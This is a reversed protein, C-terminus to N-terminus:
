YNVKITFMLSKTAPNNFYDVGRANSPGSLNTEPDNGKFDTWLFLNRGSIGFEMSNLKTKQRFAVTNLSYSIALERLKTWEASEIFSEMQAGFGGGLTQWWTEDILVPGGGFDHIYGRVTYSGDPSIPYGYSGVTYGQYNRYSGVESAPITVERDTDAHTGFNILAGRTGGWIQGGHSHEFLFSFSMNRWKIRSGLGGRWDPNTNGLVTSEDAAKPFGNGLVLDGEPTRAFGVGYIIGMPYGKVVTQTYGKGFVTVAPKGGLDTVRNKIQTWNGFLDIAWGGINLVNFSMDLEVGQNQISAANATKSNFGTSGAVAVPIILDSVKNTFYTAGLDLRDNLFRLDIGLELEKKMEPKLDPNGQLASQEYGGGYTQANASLGATWGDLYFSPDYYTTLQYPEPITSVVGYGARLKAFTMFKGEIGLSKLVHWNVTISPYFFTPNDEYNFVSSNEARGTVNLFLQNRYDIDLMSYFAASRQQVLRNYPTANDTTANDLSLPPNSKVIFDQISGGVNKFTRQQGNIGMLVTLKSENFIRFHGQFFGDLNFQTEQISELSLNGKFFGATGVPSIESRGESYHDVGTRLTVNLWQLPNVDLQATGIFRNVDSENKINYMTWLPNDYGPNLAMGIQNRYSLQHNPNFSGSPPVYYGEYGKENDWDPSTRLGGLFIGSLNNGMQLRDSTIKSFFLTSGIGIWDNFQRNSNIRVSTRRYNSNAKALGEQNLDAISFYYSNDRSGGSISLSQDLTHGGDFLAEYPDFTAVSNKGGNPPANPDFTTEVIPYVKKGQSTLFYGIYDPDNPDSVVIDDEGSRNAIKDGYSYPWGAGNSFVGTYYYGSIGQGWTRQLPHRALIRDVGYTGSYSVSLKNALGSGKKTKIVIVGNGARTGWLASASAGKLVEISEIDHPNLDNLRSQQVVGGGYSGINSNYVPVGDVVILPQVSASISGQGRIQIYSGSGPDGSTRSILLGSSKGSLGNILTPEGSKVVSEGAIRVTSSGVKDREKELGLATIVIEALQTPDVRMAVDVISRGACDITETTFGVFSVVITELSDYLNISFEGNTDSVTGTTTGKLVINAGALPYGDSTIKGTVMRHQAFSAIHFTCCASILIIQRLSPARHKRGVPFGSGSYKQFIPDM